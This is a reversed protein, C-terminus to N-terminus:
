WEDDNLFEFLADADTRQKLMNFTTRFLKAVEGVPAPLNGTFFVPDIAPPPWPPAPGERAPPLAPPTANDQTVPVANNEEDSPTTDRTPNLM